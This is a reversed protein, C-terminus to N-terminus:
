RPELREALLEWGLHLRRYFTPRTLHHREAVVEQSGVKKVYYDRLIIGAEGARGGESALAEVAALLPQRQESPLRDLGELLERIAQADVTDARDGLAALWERALRMHHEIGHEKATALVSRLATRAAERDGAALEAEALVLGGRGAMWPYGAADFADTAARASRRAAQPDDAVQARARALQWWANDEDAESRRERLARAAEEGRGAAVLAEVACEAGLAWQPFGLPLALAERGVDAGEAARGAAVLAPVAVHGRSHFAGADVVTSELLEIAEAARDLELLAHARSVSLRRLDGPTATLSAEEIERLLEAPGGLHVLLSAKVRHIELALLARREEDLEELRQLAERGRLAVMRLTSANQTGALAPMYLRHRFAWEAAEDTLRIGEDLRGLVGICTGIVGRALAASREDGAVEAAVMAREALSIAEEPQLLAMLQAALMMLVHGVKATPARGLEALALRRQEEAEETRARRALTQSYTARASAASRGAQELCAIAQEALEGGHEIQFAVLANFAARELLEGREGCEATAAAAREFLQSAEVNAGTTEAAEAAELALPLAQADEGAAFLHHALEAQPAGLERLAGAAAGHAARMAAADMESNVASAVLAHRFRYQGREAREMLGAELLRALTAQVAAPTRGALRAVLGAHFDRGLVSAAQLVALEPPRLGHARGLVAERVSGPLGATGGRRSALLLEGAAFPNGASLRAVEALLEVRAPSGLLAQALRALDAQRLPRPRIGAVGPQRLLVALMRDEASERWTVLLALRLRGVRAALHSVLQQTTADAWQLDDIILVVGQGADLETIVGLLAEFVATQGAGDLAPPIADPFFSPVVAAALRHRPGLRGKLAQVDIDSLANSLAQSVPLWPVSTTAESATAWLVTMGAAAAEAAAARALATKGGGAEAFVVASGGAGSRARALLSSLQALEADRGILM